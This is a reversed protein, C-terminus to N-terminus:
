PKGYDKPMFQMKDWPFNQLVQWYALGGFLVPYPDAEGALTYTNTGVARLSVSGATDWVVFGYKQAAKAIIKGVPTLPLADVNVSPDLRMRTGEPIANTQNDLNYGDSRNAPWSLDYWKAPSPIAIGMVHNIAGNRLEQATIEGGIYPLGTATAGYSYSFIGEQEGTNQMRGGWCAQWQGNNQKMVWFDWLTHTSFDYVSMESDTGDAPQAVDPIPVGQFQSVLGQDVSGKNQCDTVQVNSLKSVPYVPMGDIWTVTNAGGVSQVFYVPAAYSSTGIATTGGYRNVIQAELNQAYEASLPNLPANAPIPQYWFSSPAFVRTPAFTPLAPPVAASAGSALNSTTAVSSGGGCGGLLCATFVSLVVGSMIQM